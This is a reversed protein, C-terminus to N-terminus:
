KTEGKGQKWGSCCRLFAGLTSRPPRIGAVDCPGAVRWEILDGCVVEAIEFDRPPELGVVQTRVRLVVELRCGQHNIADDERGCPRPARDDGGVGLSALEEPYM